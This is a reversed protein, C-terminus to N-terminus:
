RRFYASRGLQPSRGLVAAGGVAAVAAAGLRWWLGSVDWGIAHDLSWTGAGNFALGLAVTRYCPRVELRRQLAM